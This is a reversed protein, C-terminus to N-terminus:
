KKLASTYDENIETPEKENYPTLEEQVNWSFYDLPELKGDKSCAEM